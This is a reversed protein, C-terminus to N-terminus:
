RVRGRFCFVTSRQIESVRSGTPMAKRRCVFGISYSAYAGGQRPRASLTSVGALVRKKAEFERDDWSRLESIPQKSGPFRKQSQRERQSGRREEKSFKIVGRAAVVEGAGGEECM